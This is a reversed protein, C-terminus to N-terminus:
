ELKLYSGDAFEIIEIGRGSSSYVITRIKENAANSFVLVNSFQYVNILTDKLADQLNNTPPDYGELDFVETASNDGSEVYKLGFSVGNDGSSMGLQISFEPDQFNIFNSLTEHESYQCSEPGPKDKIIKIERPQTNALIREGSDNRYNLTTYEQFPVISRAFEDLQYSGTLDEECCGSLFILIILLSANKFKM